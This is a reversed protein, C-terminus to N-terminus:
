RICYWKCFLLQFFSHFITVCSDNRFVESYLNDTGCAKNLKASFIAKRVETINIDNNLEELTEDDHIDMNKEEELLDEKSTDSNRDQSNDNNLLNSFHSAWQKQVSDPDNLTIGNSDKIQKPLTLKRDKQIGVSKVRKWFEAQNNVCVDTLDQQLKLQYLRRAKRHSRSFAKRSSVFAAKLRQRSSGRHKLWKREKSCVDVWMDALIDNWWPKNKLKSHKSKENAKIRKVVSPLHQAMEANVLQCFDDYAVNVNNKVHIDNEISQIAHRIHDKEIDMFTQPIHKVNFKKVPTKASESCIESSMFQKLSLTTMLPSHDPLQSLREPLPLNFMNRIEEVTQVQFDTHESLQSHPICIYDVVAKGKESISTFNNTGLRGNLMCFNASILFEMFFNCYSNECDDISERDIIDDVGEIFDSVNSCRANFDGGVVIKGDNQYTNVQTLLNDFFSHMDVARSTSYLPLYCVCVLLSTFDVKSTFKVWLIDEYESDIIDWTFSAKLRDNILMGVGGSGRRASASINLRNHGIWTYGDIMVTDKGKLFTECLCIIDMDLQQIALSKFIWASNFDNSYSMGNVNWFAVRM